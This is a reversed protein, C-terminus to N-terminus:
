YPFPRINEYEAIWQGNKPFGPCNGPCGQYGATMLAAALLLSGNGPLYVPLDKRLKQVNHGNIGYCNNPTDMLILDVALEPEGLRVATMALVAFDWGWATSFDWEQRVKILTNRVFERRLRGSDILGFAALMSPHDKNYRTFTDPCNEHALYYGDKVPAAAMNAAAEQWKRSDERRGLRKAWTIAIDLTFRWYEVEFAPNLTHLPNHAEQAPILPPVLEYRGATKNWVAVEAMYDATEKVVEYYEHILEGSEGAQRALELLYIIHPQQWLLLTAIPSPSDLADYAVQKPWKAGRFGNRAANEKAEELHQRYWALSKKLRHTNEWLPLYAMHWLYMELHFKGHWSNCTLGTEQPPLSGCCNVATLYRSLVLRRELEQARPDTSNHLDIAGGNEWFQKWGRRSDEFVLEPSLKAPAPLVAANHQVANHQVASHQVASHQVANHQVPSRHMQDMFEVSFSFSEKGAHLIIEHRRGTDMKIEGDSFIAAYYGDEDLRRELLMGYQDELLVKTVHSDPSSWDSGTIDASGYPFAIQVTLDGTGLLTSEIHFALIDKQAHCCTRIRCVEQGLKFESTLIGSYLELSQQIGIIEEPRIQRNRYLLGIRGLNIRHPNRRLWDYVAENGPKREAAYTVTRGAYEYETLKLDELTYYKKDGQAPATHWGWQSMTCLPFEKEGYLEYLSQMGTVDATYALEGNGVSMPSSPDIDTLVPNHRTVLAYRDIAM